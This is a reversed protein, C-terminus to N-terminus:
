TKIKQYKRIDTNQDKSGEIKGNGTMGRGYGLTISWDTGLTYTIDINDSQLTINKKGIKGKTTMTTCGFGVGNSFVLHGTFGETKLSETSKYVSINMKGQEGSLIM